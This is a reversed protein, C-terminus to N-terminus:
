VRGWNLGARVQDACGRGQRSRGWAHIAPGLGALVFIPPRNGERRRGLIEGFLGAQAHSAITWTGIFGIKTSAESLVPSHALIGTLGIVDDAARQRNSGLM